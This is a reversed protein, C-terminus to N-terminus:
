ARGPLPADPTRAIAAAAVILPLGPVFRAPRGDQGAHERAEILDLVAACLEADPSDEPVKCSLTALALQETPEVGNFMLGIAAVLFTHLRDLLPDGPLKAPGPAPGADAPEEGALIRAMQGGFALRIQDDTLGAQIAYRLHLAAAFAPTGYPADSAFVIQGPPVMSFLALLDTPAWWATDFFLNPHDPAAEWIWALDCIGCHALILRLGPHRGTVALAHRGLAPIGRGAHVLVPLGREDALAFVPELEPTDLPFDEARPHLKIGAAGADLCRTAEELPDARPDLRCYPTLVGDSELSAEIVMDNAASYGGPEHMPFVASRAGGAEALGALLQERTYKFGDPDNAGIHTHADFLEIGPVRERAAELLPRISGDEFM